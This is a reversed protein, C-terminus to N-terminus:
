WDTLEMGSSTVGIVHEERTVSITGLMSANAPAQAEDIMAKEASTLYLGAVGGASPNTISYPGTTEQIVGSPNLWVRTASSLTVVHFADPIDAVLDGFDDVYTAKAYARVQTSAAELIKVARGEGGQTDAVLTGTWDELDSISAFAPLM